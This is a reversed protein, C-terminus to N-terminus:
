ADPQLALPHRVLGLGGHGSYGRDPQRRPRLLRVAALRPAARAQAGAARRAGVAARGAQARHHPQRRLRRRGSDAARLRRGRGDRLEAPRHGAQLHRHGARQLPRRDGQRHRLRHRGAHLHRLGRQDRRIECGAAHGHLLRTDEVRRARRGGRLAQRRGDVARGGPDDARASLLLLGPGRHHRGRRLDLRRLPVGQPIGPQRVSLGALDGAAAVACPDPDPGGGPVPGELAHLQAAACLCLRLGAAARDPDHDGVRVPQELGFRVAIADFLVAPLQGPRRVRRAPEPLEQVAVGM